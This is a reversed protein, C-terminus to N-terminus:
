VHMDIMRPATKTNIAWFHYLHIFSIVREIDGIQFSSIVNSYTIDGIQNTAYEIRVRSIWMLSTIDRM